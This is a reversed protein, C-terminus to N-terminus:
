EVRLEQTRVHGPDPSVHVSTEVAINARMLTTWGLVRDSVDFIDFVGLVGQLATCAPAGSIFARRQEQTVLLGTALSNRIRTRSKPAVHHPGHFNTALAFM